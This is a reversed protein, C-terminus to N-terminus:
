IGPERGELLGLYLDSLSEQSPLSRNWSKMMPFEQMLKKLCPVSNHKSYIRSIANALINKIGAIHEVQIGVPKNIMLICLIRQLAKGKMTKTAVKKIWAKSTSNDTWNLMM